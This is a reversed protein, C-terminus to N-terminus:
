VKAAPTARRAIGAIFLDINAAAMPEAEADSVGWRPLHGDIYM